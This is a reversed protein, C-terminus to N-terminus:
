RRHAPRASRSGTAGRHPTAPTLVLWAIIGGAACLAANIWMARVFGATFRGDRVPTSGGVGVALPLAATALLGGLRAVANNVGSAIGAQSADLSGLVATTLPAVILSLGCGFVIAPILVASVYSAGPRVHTFLAMGLAAVAAGLTM